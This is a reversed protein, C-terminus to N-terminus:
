RCASPRASRTTDPALSRLPVHRDTGVGGLLAGPITTSQCSVFVGEAPKGAQRLVGTLASFKELTLLLETQGPLLTPLRMGRSRGLTEHEAVITIDGAPFGSLTFTGAADTTDKKTAQGMPGMQASSSTGNGFIIRGAYVTAGEVPKGDMVVHGAIQRGKEVMITGADATKSAGRGHDRRRADPVDAGRVSREYKEAAPERHRVGDANAPQSLLGVGVIVFPPTGGDALQVKGKVGGTPPLVLKVNADGTKANVGDNGFFDRNAGPRAATVNYEGPALGVLKWMGSADSLSQPLGRLRWATFDMQTRNDAFSPGATVQAGEIPHGEPDVVLGSITGTVDLTLLVNM